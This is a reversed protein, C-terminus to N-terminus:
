HHAILRIVQRQEAVTDISRPMVGSLRIENLRVEALADGPHIDPTYRLSGTAQWEHEAGDCRAAGGGISLRTGGQVVTAAIQVTTGEPSPTQCHYTGSLTITDGGSLRGHPHVSIGQDFVTASAQATFVATAALASLAALAMRSGHIRM